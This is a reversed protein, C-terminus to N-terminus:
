EPGSVEALGIDRKARQTEVLEIQIQEPEDFDARFFYFERRGGAGRGDRLDVDRAERDFHQIVRDYFIDRRKEEGALALASEIKEVRRRGSAQVAYLGIPDKNSVVDMEIRGHGHFQQFDIGPGPLVIAFRGGDTAFGDRGQRTLTAIPQDACTYARKAPQENAPKNIVFCSGDAERQFRAEQFLPKAQVQGDGDLVRASWLRTLVHEGDGQRNRLEGNPQHIEHAANDCEIKLDVAAKHEIEAIGPRG